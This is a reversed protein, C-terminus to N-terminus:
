GGSSDVSLVYGLTWSVGALGDPIPVGHADKLADENMIQSDGVPIDARPIGAGLLFDSSAIVQTTDRPFGLGRASAGVLVGADGVPAAPTEILGSLETAVLAANFCYLDIFKDSANPCAKKPEQKDKSCLRVGITTLSNANFDMPPTQGKLCDGLGGFVNGLGVFKPKFTTGYVPPQTDGELGCNNVCRNPFISAVSPDTPYVLNRSCATFDSDNNGPKCAPIEGFQKRAENIGLRNSSFAYLEYKNGIFSIPSRNNLIQPIFAIQESAGGIELIGITDIAPGGLTKNMYNAAIWAYESEFAGDIVRVTTNQFGGAKIAAEAVTLVHIGQDDINVIRVGATARVAVRMNTKVLEPVGNIDLLTGLYTTLANMCKTMQDDSSDALGKVSCEPPKYGGAKGGDQSVLKVIPLQTATAGAPRIVNYVYLRTGSSGADGVAVFYSYPTNPAPPAPAASGTCSGVALLLGALGISRFM